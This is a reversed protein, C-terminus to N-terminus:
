EGNRITSMKYHIPIRVLTGLDPVSDICIKYEKGYFVILRQQINQLGLGHTNQKEKFPIDLQSRLKILEDLYMGVGYDRINIWLIESSTDLSTYIEILSDVGKHEIGHMFANEVVPQILMKPIQCNELKSPININLKIQYDNRINLIAIYSRIYELEERLTVFVNEWRLCYHTMQGILTISKVIDDQDALEAQMKITELVNYLFHANIQNQMAKIETKTVIQQEIKINEISTKLLAVTKNFAIATDQLEETGKIPIRVNLDGKQVKTLGILLYNLDNLMRGATMRTIFFIAIIVVVIILISVAMLLQLQRHIESIPCDTVVMLDQNPIKKWIIIHGRDKRYKIVGNSLDLVNIKEAIETLDLESLTVSNTKETANKIRVGKYFLFNNVPENKEPYLFPFFNEMRSSIQLYGVHRNKVKIDQTFCVSLEKSPEYSLMATSIFNFQWQKDFSNQLREESFFVPWREPLKTNAAFIHIGYIDPYMFMIQEIASTKERLFYTVELESFDDGNLLFQSLNSDSVLVSKIRYFIDTSYEINQIQVDLNKQESLILNDENKEQVFIVSVISGVVVPLLTIFFIIKSLNQSFSNKAM